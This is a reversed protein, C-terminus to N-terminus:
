IHTEEVYSYSEGTEIKAQKYMKTQSVNNFLSCFSSSVSCFLKFCQAYYWKVKLPVSDCTFKLWNKKLYVYINVLLYIEGWVIFIM